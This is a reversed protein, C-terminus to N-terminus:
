ETISDGTEAPRGLEELKGEFLSMVGMLTLFITDNEGESLQLDTNPAVSMNLSDIAANFRAYAHMAGASDPANRISDAYEAAIKITQNYLRDTDDQVNEVPKSGCSALM